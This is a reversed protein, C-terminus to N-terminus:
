LEMLFWHVCIIELDTLILCFYILRQFFPLSKLILALSFYQMTMKKKTRNHLCSCSESRLRTNRDGDTTFKWIRIMVKDTNPAMRMMAKMIQKNQQQLHSFKPYTHLSCRDLKIQSFLFTMRWLKIGLSYHKQM